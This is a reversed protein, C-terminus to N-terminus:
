SVLLSMQAGAHSFWCNAYAFVFVCILKATVAFSILAKAKAVQITCYRKKRFVFNWAKLWRWYSYLRTRTLGPWFGFQQNEWACAWKFYSEPLLYPITFPVLRLPISFFPDSPLCNVRSLSSIVHWVNVQSTQGRNLYNCPQNPKSRINGYAEYM